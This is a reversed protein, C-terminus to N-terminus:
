IKSSLLGCISMLSMNLALNRKLSVSQVLQIGGSVFLHQAHARCLPSRHSHVQLLRKQSGSGALVTFRSCSGLSTYPVPPVPALQLLRRRRSLGPTGVCLAPASACGATM